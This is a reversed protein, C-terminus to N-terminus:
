CICPIDLSMYKEKKELHVTNENQAVKAEKSGTKMDGGGGRM